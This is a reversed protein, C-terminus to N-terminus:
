ALDERGLRAILDHIAALPVLRRRRIRITELQRSHILKYLTWKSVKLAVCTEAVTLLTHHPEITLATNNTTEM